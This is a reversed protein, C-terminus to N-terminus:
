SGAPEELDGSENIAQLRTDDYKLVRKMVDETDAGLLPAPKRIPPRQGDILWPTAVIDRSGSVPHDVTQRVELGAFEESTESDALSVIRTAVGGHRRVADIADSATKGRM